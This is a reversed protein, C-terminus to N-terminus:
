EIGELAEALRGWEAESGPLGFRLWRQSYPFIRTWIMRRALAEHWRRANQVEILRFLTTGGVIRAGSRGLLSDLRAADVSLRERTKAAWELDALAKTGIALAPGSVPWPGLIESLRGILVPDGIAFGLRLGALGWFKGLGKLVVVGPRAALAILSNEPTIDAFSEDLVVLGGRAEEALWLRGDPNNPHVLVLADAAGETVTWGQGAFARRHENYTPGPICVQGPAALAPLRAILSSTGPAAIIAAGQPVRWFARAAAQVRDSAERDPLRTWVPEPLAPLPYPIPNIGTSLDIWDAAEGGFQARAADIGGGHSTDTTEGMLNPM